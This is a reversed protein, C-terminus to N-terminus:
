RNPTATPCALTGGLYRQREQCTLERPARQRSYAVLEGLPGCIEGCRYVHALGDESATAIYDGDRSFTAGWLRDSAGALELVTLGSRTDWVRASGDESATLAWRSDGSFAATEVRDAHGKLERPRWEATDWLVARNEPRSASTVMWRGDASFAVSEVSNKHVDELTRTLTVADAGVTWVRPTADEGVTAILRGDPSFAATRVRGGHGELRGIVAGTAVDWVTAVCDTQTTALRAGDPSFVASRLYADEPKYKCGAPGPLQKPLERELRGDAARWIRVFGDISTTAVRRGTPDVALDTTRGQHILEAPARGTEAEWIRAVCSHDGFTALRPRQGAAPPIFLAGTLQDNPAQNGELRCGEVGGPPGPPARLAAVEVGTVVERIRAVADRGATAVWGGDPSFAASRAGGDHRVAGVVPLSDVLWLRATGDESTTLARRGDPEFAAGTLPAAHGSLVGRPRGTAVEWLRATGDESYTLVLPAGPRDPPSFVAGTVRSTHGNLTAALRGTALEWVRATPDWGTTVVWKDDPSFAVSTVPGEHGRLAIPAAPNATDRIVADGRRTPGGASVGGVLAVWRGDHSFAAGMVRGDDRGDPGSLAGAFQGRCAGTDTEWIWATRQGIALLLGADHSLVARTAKEIPRGACDTPMPRLGSVSDRVSLVGDSAGAVVLTWRGDARAVVDLIRGDQRVSSLQDLSGAGWLRVAGDGEATVVHRGDPSAAVVPANGVLAEDRLRAGTQRDVLRLRWAVSPEDDGARPPGDIASLLVLRQQDPGLVATAVQRQDAPGLRTLLPASLARRLAQDAEDTASEEVAMRALVVAREPDAALEAVASAALGRSSAVRRQEEAVLWSFIAAVAFVVAALAVASLVIAWRRMSQQERERLAVCADVYARELANLTTRPHQALADASRLRRGRHVLLSEDRGGAAWEQAADRLQERARLGERDEDLWGVLRPWYRLLADHALTVEDQDTVLNRGTVLLGGTALRAVLSRTTAEDAGAPVLEALAVRRRTDRREPAAGADASEDEDLRTLRVFVDRTREQEDATLGAYIAEATHAIAQQVGGLARYEATLLWRGRRRNWLELLAHQMLPMAGPEGAVDDLITQVLDAEFRLGVAAAQREVVARLEAPTLPEIVQQHQQLMAWFAPYRTCEGLFDTRLTLVVRGTEAHLLLRDLFARRREDARCLTFIEEFQDVVLAIREGERGALRGELMAPPDAGPTFTLTTWGMEELAPALGALALSSKGSGSRGLVALLPEDVLRARLAEVLAERGFFFARDEARFPDLGRFPCRGDYLPPDVGMALSAFRREIVRDCLADLAALATDREAVGAQGLEEPRGDLLGALTARRAALEPALAPAREAVLETLRALGRRIDDPSLPGVPEESFLRRGGLRSFLAPVLVDHQEALEATAEALALDVEAHERLRAYFDTTLTAATAMTVPATMALVAPMGLDRVLRQGLGGLGAEAAPDATSCTALFAFHPLGRPGRLRGLREVLRTATVPEVGGDPGALYLVPEADEERLRGHCVIHLLTYPAVTLRECLDDLTPPGVAGDVMALADCPIPRLAATVGACVEGVDFPAFDYEALGDPSAALLLATLDRRDIPPFRRDTLSPLYLSFPRGQDLALFDWADGGRPACLREWHMARLDLAEVALLVRLPDDGDAAAQSLLDRVGDRFLARGLQLGYARQDGAVDLTAPEIALRGEARQALFGDGRSYEAVVPWGGDVARQITIEFTRV